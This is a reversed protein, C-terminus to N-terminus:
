LGVVHELYITPKRIFIIAKTLKHRPLQRLRKYTAGEGKLTMLPMSNSSKDKEEIRPFYETKLPEKM